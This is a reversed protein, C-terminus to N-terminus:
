KPAQERTLARLFSRGKDSDLCERLRKDGSALAKIEAPTMGSNRLTRILAGTRRRYAECRALGIYARRTMATSRSYEIIKEYDDSADAFEDIAFLLSARQEYLSAERKRQPRRLQEDLRRKLRTVGKQDGIRRLTVATQVALASTEEADLLEHLRRTTADHNKPAVTALARVVQRTDQWDLREGLLALLAKAAEDHETVAIAFYAIYNPLLREDKEVTLAQVVTDAVQGAKAAILYDLVEERLGSDASGLLGIVEPAAASSGHRKLAEIVLMQETGHSHRVLDTLLREAQATKAHGLLRIAELHATESRSPNQLLDALADVFSAPDLRELVRRCNGALQRASQSNQAPELKELLLPVVSDGLDAAEAIRADLFQRNKRYDLSLDALFPELAKVQAPRAREARNRAIEIAEDLGVQAPLMPCLLLMLTAFRVHM